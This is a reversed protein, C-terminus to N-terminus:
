HKFFRNKSFYLPIKKNNAYNVIKDDNISGNPEVIAKCNNKLLLKINDTFPFFADSAVVFGADKDKKQCKKLAIKCADIRSMQGAGIGVTKKNKCLVIANSKVHKCIKLAFILDDLQASNSKYNSAQLLLKKNIKALNKDQKLYGGNISKIEYIKKLQDKNIKILILKKKLKFVRLAQKNFRSAIVVEVYNKIIKKALNEDVSRNLAIISGFSSIPDAGLARDYAKNITLNSAAGCPNNHKLIICTPEKFEHLCNMSSDIDLINNYSLSKGQLQNTILNEQKNAYFVNANQNPNEGYLLPTKNKININLSTNSTTNFWNSIILDYNSTLTFALGAMKKRFGLTTSGQNFKMEKAFSSYLNPSSIITVSNFNKAASRLLTPGGIDILEIIKNSDKSNVFNEFPYLNSIVFDIKPFNLSDFTSVHRKNKRNFLLSAHIKPHLTKVRGNLIEKFKTLKSINQCPFGIKRIYKATSGTSIIGISFKKLTHCILKLNSKDFTSILAYRKYKLNRNTVM